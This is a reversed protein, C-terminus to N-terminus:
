KDKGAGQQVGFIFGAVALIAAIIKEIHQSFLPNASFLAGILCFIMAALFSVAIVFAINLSANTSGTAKGIIGAKRDHVDLEHKNSMADDTDEGLIEFSTSALGPVTLGGPWPLKTVAHWIARLIAAVVASLVLDEVASRQRIEAGHFIVLKDAYAQFEVNVADITTRSLWEM